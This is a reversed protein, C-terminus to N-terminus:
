LLSVGSIVPLGTYTNQKKNKIVAKISYLVLCAAQLTTLKYGNIKLRVDRDLRKGSVGYAPGRFNACFNRVSDQSFRAIL